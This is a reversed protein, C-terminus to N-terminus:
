RTEEMKEQLAALEAELQQNRRSLAEIRPGLMAEIEAECYRPEIYKPCNWDMAAIDIVVLREAEPGNEQALKEKLGGDQQAGVMTAHGLLKLRAKRPYDMLILSVRNNGDLNGQTVFQHNGTYDAFGIQQPGLVKLFGRPGGRHQVYPWGDANQSAMYFSTRSTIFTIADENLDGKFRNQYAKEFRWYSGDAKQHAAVADTFMLDAFSEM